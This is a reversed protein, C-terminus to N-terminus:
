ERIVKAGPYEKQVEAEIVRDVEFQLESIKMQCSLGALMMSALGGLVGVKCYTRLASLGSEFREATPTSSFSLSAVALALAQWGMVVLLAGAAVFERLGDDFARSVVVVMNLAVIGVVAYGWRAAGRVTKQDEVSLHMSM